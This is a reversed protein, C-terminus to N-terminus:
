TAVMGTLSQAAEWVAYRGEATRCVDIPRQGAFRGYKHEVGLWIAVGDDYYTERLAEVVMLLTVDGSM